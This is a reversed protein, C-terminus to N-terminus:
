KNDGPCYKTNLVNCFSGTSNTAMLRRTTIGSANNSHVTIGDIGLYPVRQAAIVSTHPTYTSHNFFTCNSINLAAYFKPRYDVLSSPLDYVYYYVAMGVGFDEELNNGDFLSDTIYMHAIGNIVPEWGICVGGGFRAENQTFTTDSINLVTPEHTQRHPVDGPSFDVLVGGGYIAYGRYFKSHSITLSAFDYFYVALNGGLLAAHGEDFTTQSIAVSSSAKFIIAMNGGICGFNKTLTTNTIQVSVKESGLSLLLGSSLNSCLPYSYQLGNNMIETNAITVNVDETTLESYEVVNGGWVNTFNSIANSFKCSEVTVKRVVNQIYIGTSKANSVVINILTHDSGGVFLLASLATPPDHYYPFTWTLGCGTFEIGSIKLMSVDHFIFGSDVNLSCKIVSKSGRLTINKVHRLECTRNLPHNGSLVQVLIDNHWNSANQCFNSITPKSECSSPVGNSDICVEM